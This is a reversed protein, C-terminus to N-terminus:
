IARGESGEKRIETRGKKMDKRRMRGKKTDKKGKKKGEYLGGGHV